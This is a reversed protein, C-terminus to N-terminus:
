PQASVAATGSSGCAPVRQQAAAAAQRARLAPPGAACRGRACLHASGGMESATQRRARRAETPEDRKQRQTRAVVILSIRALPNVRGPRRAPHRSCQVISGESDHAACMRPARECGAKQKTTWTEQATSVQPATQQRAGGCAAGRSSSGRGATPAKASRAAATCVCYHLLVCAIVCRLNCAFYVSAGCWVRGRRRPLQPLLAVDDTSRCSCLLLRPLQTTSLECSLVSDLLSVAADRRAGGESRPTRAALRAAVGGGRRRRTRGHADARRERAPRRPVGSRAACARTNCMHLLLVQPVRVWSQQGLCGPASRRAARRARARVVQARRAKRPAQASGRTQECSVQLLAAGTRVCRARVHKAPAPTRPASPARRARRRARRASVVHASHV